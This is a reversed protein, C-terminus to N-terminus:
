YTQFSAEPSIGSNELMEKYKSSKSKPVKIKCDKYIGNFANKEVIKLNKCRIKINKLTKLNFFAKEEISEISDGIIVSVLKTCETFAKDNIKTIRNGIKLTKLKTLNYFATNSCETVFFIKKNIRIKTPIVLKNINHNICGIFKVTDLSIIEYNLGDNSIIEGINSWLSKKLAKKGVKVSKLNRLSAFSEKPYETVEFERGDIKIKAPIKLNKVEINKCGIFKVSSASIIEYELKKVTVTQGIASDYKVKGDYWSIEDFSMANAFNTNVPAKGGYHRYYSDPFLVDGRIYTKDVDVDTSEGKRIKRAVVITRYDNIEYSCTSLMILRDNENVDVPCYYLSRSEIQYLFDLFDERNEFTGKLYNFNGNQSITGAVRMYSIIKWQSNKYISDFTIVPHKKYFNIDKYNLLEYFMMKTSEMNHGHILINKTPKEVNCNGDIYLCGNKDSNGEFDHKLYFDGGNIDQMVPYDINTGPISLWGKIDSNYELLKSFKLLRGDKDKANRKHSNDLEVSISDDKTTNFDDSSNDSINESFSYYIERYQENVKKSYYPQLVLYYLIFLACGLFLLVSCIKIIKPINKKSLFKM